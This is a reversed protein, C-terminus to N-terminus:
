IIYVHDIEVKGKMEPVSISVAFIILLSQYFKNIVSNIM